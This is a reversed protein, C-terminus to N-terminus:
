LDTSHPSQHFNLTNLSFTTIQVSRRSVDVNEVGRDGRVCLPPQGLNVEEVARRNVEEVARSFRELVTSAKNNDSAHCYVIKRSYDDIGGHIVIRYRHLFIKPEIRLPAVFKSILLM